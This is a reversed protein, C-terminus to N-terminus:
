WRLRDPVLPQGDGAFPAHRGPDDAGPQGPDSAFRAEDRGPADLISEYAAEYRDVMTDLGFRAAVDSRCARRDLVGLHEIARVLGDVDGPVVVFGTRGNDVIEPLSGRGFGIVPTGCALAEIMVLGFPEEWRIPFLLAAADALLRRKQDPDAEGVLVIQRGDIHPEVREAYFTADAPDVKGALVLRRGARRAAEIALDPGKEPSFRGLFVLDGGSPSGFPYTEIPLGHPIAELRGRAPFTRGHSASVGHHFWPYADWISRLEPAYVLHNTTLVPTACAAALVMGEPGAHNHIVDFAGGAAARFCAQANALQVWEPHRVPGASGYRVPAPTISALRGRTISDGSAFLTVEHGREVLAETLLSVVLETGGYTAPPVREYIPALQAIRM